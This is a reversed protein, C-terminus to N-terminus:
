SLLITSLIYSYDKLDIEKAKEDQYDIFSLIVVGKDINIEIKVPEGREANTKYELDNGSEESALQLNQLHTLSINEFKNNSTILTM